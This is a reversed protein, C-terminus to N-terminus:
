VVKDHTMPCCVAFSGPGVVVGVREGQVQGVGVPGAVVGEREGQARTAGGRGKKDWGGATRWGGGVKDGATRVREREREREREGRSDEGRCGREVGRRHCTGLPAVTAPPAVSAPRPHTGRWEMGRLPAVSTTWPRPTRSERMRKAGVLDSPLASVRARAHCRPLRHRPPARIQHDRGRIERTAEANGVGLDPPRGKRREVGLKRPRRGAEEEEVGL